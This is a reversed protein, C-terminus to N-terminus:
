QDVIIAVAAALEREHTLSIMIKKGPLSAKVDDDLVVYPKGTADNLIQIHRYPVREQRFDGLAKIIAEKAAFRAALFQAKNFKSDFLPMEDDGLIKVAFKDGWQSLAKKVRPVNILDIGISYIM